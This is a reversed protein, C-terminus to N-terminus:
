NCNVKFSKNWLTHCQLGGNINAIVSCVCKMEHTVWMFLIIFHTEYLFSLQTIDLHPDVAMPAICNHRAAGLCNITSCNENKGCFGPKIVFSEVTYKQQPTSIVLPPRFLWDQCKLWDSLWSSFVQGSQKLGSATETTVGLNISSM